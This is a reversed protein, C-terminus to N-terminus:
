AQPNRARDSTADAYSTIIKVLSHIAATGGALIFTTLFIDIATLFSYYIHAVSISSSCKEPDSEFGTICNLVDTDIDFFPTLLRVGVLAVLFSLGVATASAIKQTKQRYQSLSANAAILDAALKETDIVLKHANDATNTDLEANQARATDLQEKILKKTTELHERGFKRWTQVIIEVAREVFAAAIFAPGLLSTITDIDFSSGKFPFTFLFFQHLLLTAVGVVGLIKIINRLSTSKDM